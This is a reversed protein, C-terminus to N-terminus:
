DINNTKNEIVSKITKWDIDEQNNTEWQVVAEYIMQKGLRHTPVFEVIFYASLSKSQSDQIMLEYMHFFMNALYDM